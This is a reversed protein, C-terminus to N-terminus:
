RRWPQQPLSTGPHYVAFAFGGNFNDRHDHIPLEPPGSFTEFTFVYVPEPVQEDADPEPKRYGAFSLKVIKDIIGRAGNSEYATGTGFSKPEFLKWKAGTELLLDPDDDDFFPYVRVWHYRQGSLDAPGTIWAWFEQEAPRTSVPKNTRDEPTSLVKNVARKIKEAARSTFVVGM